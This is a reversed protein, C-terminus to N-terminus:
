LGDKDETLEPHPWSVREYDSETREGTCLGLFPCVSGYRTCADPNTPAEGDEAEDAERQAETCCVNAM